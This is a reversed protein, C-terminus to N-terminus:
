KPAVCEGKVCVRDGKCDTDKGCGAPAPPPPPPPPAPATAPPPPTPATAPPRKEDKTGDRAGALLATIEREGVEGKLYGLARAMCPAHTKAGHAVLLRVGEPNKLLIARCLVTNGSRSQLEPDAGRALLLRATELHGRTAGDMALHLPTESLQAHAQENIAAGADLAAQVRRPDGDSAARQLPTYCGSAALCAVLLAIALVPLPTVLCRRARM